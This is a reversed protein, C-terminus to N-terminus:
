ARQLIVGDVRGIEDVDGDSADVDMFVSIQPETTLQRSFRAINDLGVYFGAPLALAVGFVAVNLLTALPQNLLRRLSDRLADVHAFVWTM